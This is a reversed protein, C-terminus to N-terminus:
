DEKDTGVEDMLRYYTGDQRRASALFNDAVLGDLVSRRIGVETATFWLRPNRSALITRAEVKSMMRTHM